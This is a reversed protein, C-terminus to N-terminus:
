ALHRSREPLPAVHRPTVQLAEQGWRTKIDTMLTDYEAALTTSDEDDGINDCGKLLKQLQLFAAM